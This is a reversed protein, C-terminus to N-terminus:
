EDEKLKENNEKAKTILADKNLTIFKFAQM